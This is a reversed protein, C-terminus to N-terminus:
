SNTAKSDRLAALVGKIYPLHKRLPALDGDVRVHGYTTMAFLDQFGRSPVARWFEAWCSEAGRIAFAYSRLLFTGREIESIHGAQVTIHFEDDGIQVIFTLSCARGIRTLWSQSNVAQAMSTMRECPTIECM